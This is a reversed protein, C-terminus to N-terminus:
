QTKEQYSDIEEAIETMTGEIGEESRKLYNRMYFYLVLAGILALLLLGGLVLFLIGM